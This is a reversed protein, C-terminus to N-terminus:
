ETTYKLLSFKATYQLSKEANNIDMFGFEKIEEWSIKDIGAELTREQTSSAIANLLGDISYKCNLKIQFQDNIYDSNVISYSIDRDEGILLYANIWSHVLKIKMDESVSTREKLIVWFDDYGEAIECISLDLIYHKMELEKM